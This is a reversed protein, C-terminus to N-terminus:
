GQRAFDEFAKDRLANMAGASHSDLMERCGTFIDMYQQESNM